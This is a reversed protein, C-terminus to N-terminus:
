NIVKQKSEPQRDAVSDLAEKGINKLVKKVVPKNVMKVVNRAVPTFIKALSRFVGGLGYGSQIYPSKYYM